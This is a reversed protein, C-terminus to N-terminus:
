REDPHCLEVGGFYFLDITSMQCIVPANDLGDSTTSVIAVAKTLSYMSWSRAEDNQM